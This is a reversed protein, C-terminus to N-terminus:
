WIRVLKPVFVLLAIIFATIATLLVAGAALDKVKGAQENQQPSVLDTLYEIATNIAEASLVLGIAFILLAWEYWVIQFLFGLIIVLLAAIAHIKANRQSTFLLYLGKFAYSFSAFFKTFFLIFNTM